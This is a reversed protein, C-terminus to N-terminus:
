VSKNVQRLSSISHHQISEWMTRKLKRLTKSKKNRYIQSVELHKLKEYDNCEYDYVRLASYILYPNSTM